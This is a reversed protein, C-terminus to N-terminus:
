LKTEKDCTTLDTTLKSLSCCKQEEAVSFLFCKMEKKQSFLKETVQEAKKLSLVQKRSLIKSLLSPDIDLFKAFARLSYQQNNEIRRTLERQLYEVYLPIKKGM